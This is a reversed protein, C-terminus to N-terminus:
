GSGSRLGGVSGSQVGWEWEESGGVRGGEGHVQDACIRESTTCVSVSYCDGGVVGATSDLHWVGQPPFRCCFILAHVYWLVSLQCVELYYNASRICPSTAGM